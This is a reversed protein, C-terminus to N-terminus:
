NTEIPPRVHSLEIHHKFPTARFAGRKHSSESRESRRSVRRPAQDASRGARNGGGQQSGAVAGFLHEAGDVLFQVSLRAKRSEHIMRAGPVEALRLLVIAIGHVDEVRDM